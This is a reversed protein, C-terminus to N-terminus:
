LTKTFANKPVLKVDNNNVKPETKPETEKIFGLVGETKTDLGSKKISPKQVPKNNNEDDSKVIVNNNNQISSLELHREIRKLAFDLNYSLNTVNKLKNELLIMKQSINNIQDELIKLNTNAKNLNSNEEISGILKKLNDEISSIKDQQLKVIEQLGEINQSVAINPLLIFFLFISLKFTKLM